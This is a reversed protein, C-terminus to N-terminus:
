VITKLNAWEGETSMPYEKPQLGPFAGSIAASAPPLHSFGPLPQPPSAPNSPPQIKTYFLHRSFKNYLFLTMGKRQGILRENLHVVKGKIKASFQLQLM